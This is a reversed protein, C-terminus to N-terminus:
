RSQPRPVFATSLDPSFGSEILVMGWIRYLPLLQMVVYNKDTQWQRVGYDASRAVDKQRNKIRLQEEQYADSGDDIVSAWYTALPVDQCIAERNNAYHMGAPTIMRVTAALRYEPNRYPSADGSKLYAEVSGYQAEIQHVEALHHLNANIQRIDEQSLNKLDM